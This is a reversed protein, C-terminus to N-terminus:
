LADDDNERDPTTLWVYTVAGIERIGVLGKEQAHDLARRFKKKRFDRKQEPTGDAAVQAFFEIRLIRLDVAQRTPSDPEIQQPTGKDALVAMLVRRLLVLAQRTDSQRSDQWPDAEPKAQGVAPPASQWDIVLTSVPDGDEDPEPDEVRRVTFYFEEGQQAGRVKRLAVRTNAVRGGTEREGLVALVVEASSEKASGGRTGANINKGFHDVGLV